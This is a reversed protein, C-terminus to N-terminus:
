ISPPSRNPRNINPMQGIAEQQVIFDHIFTSTEKDALDKERLGAVKFIEKLNQDVKALDFGTTPDWGLFLCCIRKDCFNVGLKKTNNVLTSCMSSTRRC